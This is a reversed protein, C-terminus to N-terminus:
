PYNVVEFITVETVLNWDLEGDKARPVPENAILFILSHEPDVTISVQGKREGLLENARLQPLLRLDALCRAAKLESVRRVLMRGREVGYFRTLERESSFEKQLKNNRFHILMPRALLPFGEALIVM